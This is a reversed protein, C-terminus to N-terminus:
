FLEKLQRALRWEIISRGSSNTSGCHWDGSTERAGVGGKASLIVFNPSLRSQFHPETISKNRELSFTFPSTVTEELHPLIRTETQHHMRKCFVEVVPLDLKCIRMIANCHLYLISPIFTIGYVREHYFAM